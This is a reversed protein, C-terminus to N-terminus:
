VKDVRGYNTGMLVGGAGATLRAKGASLVLGLRQTAALTPKRGLQVPPCFAAALGDSDHEGATLAVLLDGQFGQETLAGDAAV